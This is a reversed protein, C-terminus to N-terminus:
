LLGRRRFDGMNGGSSEQIMDSAFKLLSVEWGEDVGQIIASLPDESYDVTEKLRDIVEEISSNVISETVDTKRFQFGYKLVALHGSNRQLWEMFQEAKEGFGELMMREFHNPAIILPKDAHLRGDRVRVQNVSDMLETVIYFRFNTSGFTEIRRQPALIVQTNEIAYQFSAENLM